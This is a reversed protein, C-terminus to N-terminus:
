GIARTEDFGASERARLIAEAEQEVSVGGGEDRVDTGLGLRTVLLGTNGLEVRRM